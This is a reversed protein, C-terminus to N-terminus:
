PGRAHLELLRRDQDGRITTFDLAMLRDATGAALMPGSVHDGLNVVDGIGQVAIDALVAELADLNGHIDAIAAFRM